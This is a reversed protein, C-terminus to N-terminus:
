AWARWVRGSNRPTGSQGNAGLEPVQSEAFEPQRLDELSAGTEGFEGMEAFGAQTRLVM